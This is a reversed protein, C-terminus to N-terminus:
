RKSTYEFFIVFCTKGARKIASHSISSISSHRSRGHTVSGLSSHASFSTCSQLMLCIATLELEYLCSRRITEQLTLDAETSGPSYKVSGAIGRDAIATEAPCRRSTRARAAGGATAPRPTTATARASATAATAPTTPGGAPRTCAGAQGCATSQFPFCQHSVVEFIFPMM